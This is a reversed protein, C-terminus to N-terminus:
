SSFSRGELVDEMYLRLDLGVYFMGVVLFFFFFFFSYFREMLTMKSLIRGYIKLVGYICSLSARKKRAKRSMFSVNDYEEHSAQSVVPTSCHSVVATLRYHRTLYIGGKLHDTERHRGSSDLRQRLCLSLHSPSKDGGTNDAM